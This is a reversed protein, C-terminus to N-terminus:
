FLFGRRRWAVGHSAMGSAGVVYPDVYRIVADTYKGCFTRSGEILNVSPFSKRTATMYTCRDHGGDEGRVGRLLARTEWSDSKHSCFIKPLSM